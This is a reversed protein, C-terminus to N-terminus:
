AAIKPTNLGAEAALISLQHWMAPDVSIGERTLRRISEWRAEGPIRVGDGSARIEAVLAELREGFLEMPLWRSVDIVVMFHGNNGNRTFDNFISAVGSTVGAGTLVGALIEVMLSLGFGKAGGFPLLASVEQRSTTPQGMANIAVGEPLDRGEGQARTVTSGSLASTAMDVLVHDGNGRPAGFAMPNTGFVPLRGGHAAVKPFSNGFVLSIM